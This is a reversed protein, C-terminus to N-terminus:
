LVEVFERAISKAKKFDIKGSGLRPLEELEILRSPKMIPIIASEKIAQWIEDQSLESSHLLIIQEGKKDDNVATATTAVSDGFLTAIQEEVSGLSIMEGGIKAFRSYRDVITIFGDSDMHGKDGTLYYRIGDEEYIVENTKEADNLYGQMVQPGGVIILGDEGLPLEQMSVPNVIKVITGPLAQGVTGVKNGIVPQMTDIDLSDPMNVSIVPATETAGYGEFIELSFKDKFAQKIEPKLKEAGSVVMRISDFMLPHLKRNRTYLRFFTSTGFMITARYRAALKGITPADTPDPASVMTVGECLPLLTTITLGFSHFIPLSNLIVDEEQFNLLASVQKINALLNKHTLEIGKPSGESGSSFLITAVADIDTEEFYCLEIMWKPMLYAQTLAVLKAGKGFSGGLSEVGMLKEGLIDAFDFGKGSLKQLFKESSIISEIQAKEIAAQMGEPTLTYNLNIPRKGLILLALNCISGISSSPLLLGVNKQEALPKKLAKVFLLVATIMKANSLDVGLADVVSRKSLNSKARSLWHYHLPRSEEISQSWTTLSLAKVQQKVEDIQATSPLPKGFAVTIERKSKEKSIVKYQQSARSFTSGWLGHLYFPVIPHESEKLALEYGRRFESLQGNYSIRGEPFLAVVEGNNLRERIQTIAGKSAANSIPIVNFIELFWRLYWKNYISRIMVFKIARPSAVQLILWDIWSIHNGLLLVGGRQPLNEIGEVQLRYRSKLIPLLLIRAFLHPLKRIAYLSGILTIAGATLFLAGSSWGIEVLGISLLLFLVMVINQIFNNGALITGLQSSKAFYQITANLPVIFLGGFFGFVISAIGMTIIQTSFTFLWMSLFIGLAGLPVIGHEIHKRSVRGALISGFILGVASIALIAQITIANDDGTVMKYHAPFAAIMMQGVGWFIGLGFISLWINQDSKLIKINTQLYSLTLYEKLKFSDENQTPEFLPLKYSMMAEILTLGVLLWGIPVIYPMIDHPLTGGQYYYEFIVSFLISSALIAVITIAQVLGNAAGLNETGVLEKILGYKAPSYIASQVALLFTLGFAVVFWGMAYSLTILLTIGVAVLASYRVVLSKAYKDSLYGSPSFLLIFPLLIMANIAATLIILMEGDFSKLLINQITIKHAIDVTANLLLIMLYPIFGRIALLSKM